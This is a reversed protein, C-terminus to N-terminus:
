VRPPWSWQGKALGQVVKERFGLGAKGFMVLDVVTETEHVSTVIAPLVKENLDGKYHVIRGITPKQNSM